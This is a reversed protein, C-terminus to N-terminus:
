TSRTSRITGKVPDKLTLSLSRGVAAAYRALTGYTPNLNKRLELRNLSARDIGTKESLDSLSLGLAERRQRLEDVFLNLAMQDFVTAATAEHPRNVSGAATAKRRIIAKKMERKAQAREEATLRPRRTTTDKM